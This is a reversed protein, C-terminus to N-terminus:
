VAELDAIRKELKAIAANLTDTPAVAALAVTGITYGTALVQAGTPLAHVHDARAWTTGTGVAATGLGAPTTTAAAPIATNGALATASTTGLSLSSTGAGIATRAAAADAGAGIVAPKGTIDSWAVAGGEQSAYEAIEDVSVDAQGAGGSSVYLREKGNIAM